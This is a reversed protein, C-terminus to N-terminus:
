PFINGKCGLHSIEPYSLVSPRFEGLTVRWGEGRLSSPPLQARPYATVGMQATGEISQAVIWVAAREGRQHHGFDHMMKATRSSLLFRANGDYYCGSVMM